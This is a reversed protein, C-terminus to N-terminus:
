HSQSRVLSESKLSVRVAGGSGLQAHLFLWHHHTPHLLALELPERFCRQGAILCFYHFYFSLLLVPVSLIFCWHSSESSGAPTRVAEFDKVLLGQLLRKLLNWSLVDMDICSYDKKNDLYNNKQHSGMLDKETYFFPFSFCDVRSTM